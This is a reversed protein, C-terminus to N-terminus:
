GHLLSISCLFLKCSDLLDLKEKFLTLEDEATLHPKVLETPIRVDVGVGVFNALIELGQLEGAINRAPLLLLESQYPNNLTVIM